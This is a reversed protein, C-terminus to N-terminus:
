DHHLAAAMEEYGSAMTTLIDSTQVDHTAQALRRCRAAQEVLADAQEDTIDILLNIAGTLNGDADFLPTPYPRLAARSGDPRMAIVIENRICRRQKIAKAMPCNDPPLPVGDTTYLRWTVCWRDQGLQPERGAFDVCAQNWYTVRGEADTTYVPASLADLVSRGDGSGLATLATELIDEPREITLM